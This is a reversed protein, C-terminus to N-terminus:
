SVFDCDQLDALRIPQNNQNRMHMHISVTNHLMRKEYINAFHLLYMNDKRFRDDRGLFRAKPYLQQFTQEKERIENYGNCGYPFLWPFCMEEGRPLEYANVVSGTVRPMRVKKLRRDVFVPEHTPIQDDVNVAISEQLEIPSPDTRMPHSDNALLRTCNSPLELDVYLPNNRKLWDLARVIRSVSVFYNLDHDTGERSQFSVMVAPSTGAGHLLDAPNAAINIALGKTGMQEKRPLLFVTMFVHILATFRREIKTLASLEPPVEGPDMKNDVAICCKQGAKEKVLCSHCFTKDNFTKASESFLKRDCVSCFLNMQDQIYKEFPVYHEDVIDEDQEDAVTPVPRQTRQKSQHVDSDLYEGLPDKEEGVPFSVTCNAIGFEPPFQANATEQESNPLNMESNMATDVHQSQVSDCDPVRQLDTMEVDDPTDHVSSVVPVACPPEPSQVNNSNPEEMSFSVPSINFVNLHYMRNLYACLEEMSRFHLLVSTGVGAVNGFIDRSHSDFVYFNNNQMVVAITTQDFTLLLHPSITAATTL